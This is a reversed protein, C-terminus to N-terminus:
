NNGYKIGDKNKRYEREINEKIVEIKASILALYGNLKGVECNNLEQVMGKVCTLGQLIDNFLDSTDPSSVSLTILPIEISLEAKDRILTLLTQIGEDVIVGTKCNALESISIPEPILANLEKARNKINAAQARSVVLVPYKYQESALVARTTKGGGRPLNIVRM